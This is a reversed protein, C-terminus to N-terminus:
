EGEARSGRKEGTRIRRRIREWTPTILFSEEMDRVMRELKRIPIGFSLTTSGVYPRASPDFLGLVCRPHESRSELYPYLIVAGCGACFPAIVGGGEVEEFSALTFLGALVDPPSFFAAAFPEDEEGLQDWRKAVLFEGPASLEPMRRLMERVIEPSKKYREGEMQGPIGCSLFYEFGPRLEGSFGAYRKGGPCGISEAGFRVSHGQRVRALAAILCRTEASPHALEVGAEADTYSFALPLEASGFYKEWLTLFRPKLHRNVVKVM